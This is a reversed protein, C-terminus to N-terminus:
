VHARGIKELHQENPKGAFQNIMSCIPCEAEVFYDGKKKIAAEIEPNFIDGDPCHREINEAYDLVLCDSKGDAIRLGRGIIQQLLAVSETARLIAIVDVHPADFGTTLVEVNVLYKIRRAKFALLILAREDKHTNGTVIASLEPPLSELIEEAHQITAAFFMVGQRDKAQAVVDAVISSTLRGRGHYAKDIDNANFRGGKNVQMDKTEYHGSNIAGVVPNTLYGKEILYRAPLAYVRQLDSSCM